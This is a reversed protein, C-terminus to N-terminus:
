LKSLAWYVVHSVYVGVFCLPVTYYLINWGFLYLPLEDQDHSSVNIAEAMALALLYGFLFAIVVSAFFRLVEIAFNRYRLKKKDLTISSLM